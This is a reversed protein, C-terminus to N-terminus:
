LLESELRMIRESLALNLLELLTKFDHLQYGQERCEELIKKALENIKDFPM